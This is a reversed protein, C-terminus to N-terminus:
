SRAEEDDPSKFSGSLIEAITMQRWNKRIIAFTDVMGRVEDRILKLDLSQEEEQSDHELNQGMRSVFVWIAIGYGILGLFLSDREFAYQAAGGFALAVLIGKVTSIRKVDGVPEASRKSM